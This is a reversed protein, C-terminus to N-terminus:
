SILMPKHKFYSLNNQQRLGKELFFQLSAGAVVGLIGVIAVIIPTEM